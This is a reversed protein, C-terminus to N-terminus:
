RTTLPVAVSTSGDYGTIYVRTGDDSVVMDDPSDDTAYTAVIHDLQVSNKSRILSCSTSTNGDPEDHSQRGLSFELSSPTPRRKGAAILFNTPSPMSPRCALSLNPVPQSVDPLDEIKLLYHASAYPLTHNNQMRRATAARTATPARRGPASQSSDADADNPMHSVPERDPESVTMRRQLLIVLERASSDRTVTM